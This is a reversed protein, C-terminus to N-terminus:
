IVFIISVDAVFPLVFESLYAKAHAQTCMRTNSHKFPGLSTTLDDKYPM